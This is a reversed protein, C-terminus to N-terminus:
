DKRLCDALLNLPLNKIDNIYGLVFKLEDIGNVNKKNKSVCMNYIEFNKKKKLEQNKYIFDALEYLLESVNVGGQITKKDLMCQLNNTNM